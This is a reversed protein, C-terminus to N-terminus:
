TNTLAAMACCDLSNKHLPYMLQHTLPIGAEGDVLVAQLSRQEKVWFLGWVPKMEVVMM